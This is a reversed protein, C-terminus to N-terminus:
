YMALNIMFLCTSLYTSNLDHKRELAQTLKEWINKLAAM